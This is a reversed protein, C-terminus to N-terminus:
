DRLLAPNPGSTRLLEELYTSLTRPKRGLLARLTDVNGPVGERDYASNLREVHDKFPGPAFGQLMQDLPWHEATIERGIAASMLRALGHADVGVTSALSVTQQDLHDSTLAARVVDAVDEIDVYALERTLSFPVRLRGTVRAHNVAGTLTPMPVALRLVSVGPDARVVDEDLLETSEAILVFKSVAARSAAKRLLLPLDREGRAADDTLLVVGDIGDVARELMEMDATVLAREPFGDGWPPGDLLSADRVGARVWLGAAHLGSALIEGNPDEADVVLVRMPRTPAM